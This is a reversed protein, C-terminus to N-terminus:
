ILAEFHHANVRLVHGSANYWYLKGDIDVWNTEKAKRLWNLMNCGFSHHRFKNATVEISEVEASQGLVGQPKLYNVQLNGNNVRYVETIRPASRRLFNGYSLM